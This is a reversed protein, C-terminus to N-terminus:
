QGVLRGKLRRLALETKADEIEGSECAAIAEDLDLWAVHACEEMPSGDGDLSTAANPDEIEVATLWFKEAMAGPSPFSGAGLFFIREPDVRFGAEEEVELAARRRVGGEGMDEKEVIGAVVERFFLYKKRDPIPVDDAQRGLHLAPRLGDRVLVRVKGGPGRTFIAVVVADVGKPRVIFDCLYPRSRSGDARVNVMTLRRIALFGGECGVLKESLIEVGVVSSSPHM